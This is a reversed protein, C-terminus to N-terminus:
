GPSESGCCSCSRNVPILMKRFEMTLADVMLLEGVLPRGIDLALKLAESAQLAGVIGPLVGLVGAEACGPAEGAAPPWPMLCQFCSSGPLSKAAPWFVAVQGQFRMVAGYVLPISHQVCAANLAYRTAFNDTGDIVIDWNEVLSAANERSVERDIVVTNVASNIDRIRQQASEAKALGVSSEGHVVQRQLNSQEVSDFDVLGLTGVGAAALYMAVPSNLGGLGVLLIRSDLLKRQGEAGVQPMVLHRAYREAQGSDLGAPFAVPLGAERWDRFGGAVSSFGTGGLAWLQKVAALSRLGESCMVWGRLKVDPASERVKTLLEEVSLAISGVPAGTQRETVTRIDFLPCTESVQDAVESVPTELPATHRENM